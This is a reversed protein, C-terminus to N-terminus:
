VRDIELALRFVFDQLGPINTEFILDLYKKCIPMLTRNGMEMEGLIYLVGSVRDSIEVIKSEITDGRKYERWLDLYPENGSYIENIIERNLRDVAGSFDPNHHKISYIIDGTLSEEVDHILAMRLAREINIGLDKLYDCLIMTIYVVFYSHTAVNEPVIKYATSYRVTNTLRGYTKKLHSVIKESNSEDM